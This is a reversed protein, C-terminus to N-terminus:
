DSENRSCWLPFEQEVLILLHNWGGGGGGGGFGPGISVWSCLARVKEQQAGPRVVTKGM